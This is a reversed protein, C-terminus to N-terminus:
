LRCAGGGGRCKAAEWGAPRNLQHWLAASFGSSHSRTLHHCLPPCSLSPSLTLSSNPLLPIVILDTPDKKEESRLKEKTSEQCEVAAAPGPTMSTRELTNKALVPRFRGGVTQDESHGKYFTSFKRQKWAKILGTMFLRLDSLATYCFLCWGIVLVTNFELYLYFQSM